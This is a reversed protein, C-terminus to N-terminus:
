RDGDEGDVTSPPEPREAGRVPAWIVLPAMLEFVVTAAAMASVVAAAAPSNSVQRFNMAVALALAGCPLLRLGLEAANVDRALVVAAWAGALKGTVRFVLLPVLLWLAMRGGVSAGALILLLVIVPHQIKGLDGRIIADARGPLWRWSAGAATGVLLPSWGLYAATGAVLAVVGLVFVGREAPSRADEFLLWGAVGLGAGLALSAGLTRALAMPATAPATLLAGGGVIVVVDDLEAIRDAPGGSTRGLVAASAAACVGIVLATRWASEGLPLQWVGLLYRSTLGVVVVTTVAEITAAGVLVRERSSRLDIATGAFVGLVALAISIVPDLYAQVGASLVNLGRPGLVIGLPVLVSAPAAIPALGLATRIRWRPWRM